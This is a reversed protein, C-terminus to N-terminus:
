LLAVPGPLDPPSPQRVGTYRASQDAAYAERQEDIWRAVDGATDSVTRGSTSVTPMPPHFAGASKLLWSAFSRQREIFEDAGPSRHQWRAQLRDSRDQDDCHLNLYLVDGVLCRNPLHDVHHPLLTGCLVTSTNSLGNSHAIRLWSDNREDWSSCWILDVDYVACGSLRDRLLECVASKGAGSAGTAVLLPWVPTQEGAQCQRCRLYTTAGSTRAAVDKSGCQPCYNGMMM